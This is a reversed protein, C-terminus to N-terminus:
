PTEASVAEGQTYLRQASRVDRESLRRSRNGPHMVDAPNESHPLGVVHGLEHLAVLLLFEDSMPTGDAHEVALTVVASALWGEGDTKWDTTGAQNASFRRTWRFRVDAARPNATSRFDLPLGPVDNWADIAREIEVWFSPRNEPPPAMHIWLTRDSAPEVHWRPLADENADSTNGIYAAKPPVVGPGSSPNQANADSRAVLLVLAPILALAPMSPGCRPTTARAHAIIGSSEIM